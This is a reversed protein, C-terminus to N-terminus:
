PQVCGAASGVCIPMENSLPGAPNQIQLLRTGAAPVAALDIQLREGQFSTCIPDFSGNVCTVTASVVAGDILVTPNLFADMVAVQFPAPNAPSTPLNPVPPDGTAGDGTAVTLILPQPTMESGVSQRLHATLTAVLAGSQAEALLAAHGLADGTGVQWQGLDFSLTVAVGARLGEGRLNVVGKSDAAELALLLSETAALAAGNTTTTNLSVQRGLAGSHGVSAEEFMQFMDNPFVNYTPQFGVFGASFVVLEDLGQAPNWPIVGLQTQTAVADLVEQPVTFGGSFHIFRDTMGRMTPAEFGGVAISNTSVGLPLAHCGGNTDACTNAFVQVGPSTSGGQDMFFDAFGRRAALSIADDLRRSRAPPYSIRQLFAAMDEREQSSLEGGGACGDSQDCMVGALSADVLNRFCGQEVGGANSCNAPATGAVGVEGNRGGFPDGLTGDWHLPITRRLGRVPMTSRQEEQDCGALLCEAGIVWLLQDINGDPHCSACAFTGSSSAAATEFALRGARLGPPTRDTLPITAVPALSRDEGVSVVSVSDAVASLVYATGGAGATSRFAVGRPIAGVDFTDLVALSGADITAIRNSAAATVVLTSDDASLAVGFPTALPTPVPSGPPPELDFAAPAGCNPSCAVRTIRNRFIRNELDALGLGQGEPPQAALGNGDLHHNRADTNTVFVRGDAAVALGYLLTGVNTVPSGAVPLDTATDFVFLDRDPVGPDRVVNKPVGPLNPSQAVNMIDSFGLTCQPNGAIPVACVSLESQNGSEFAAVYLRGNRVAIARPDQATITISGTVAYTSANVIAIRNRSSLAVYAKTNSAFAVGAPEDFQTVGNADISQITEVVRHLTASAPDTDVVSVSDSVHNTVWVELGDPRVAVGSPEIGVPVETIKANTAADIVALSNNATNVAYVRAGDPSLAIPSAHPSAFIEFGPNEHRPRGAEATAGGLLVAAGLAAAELWTRRITM